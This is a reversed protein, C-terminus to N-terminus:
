KYWDPHFEYKLPDKINSENFGKLRLLCSDCKGCAISGGKYCSWTDKFPVKLDYGKKIIQAKTLNILPTKIIINNGEISKKTAINALKQFATIFEPRCDPYGSYDMSNVGIFISQANIVEAYALAISLFITNRAPVYTQPIENGIELLDKEQNKFKGKFLLSGGFIDLNLKFIIHKKSKINSSIKKACILEKNHQQGYYFSISYINYGLDKAIYAVVTSDLGGSLLCIARKKGM